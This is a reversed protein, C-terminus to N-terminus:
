VRLRAAKKKIRSIANDVSKEDKNLLHAIQAYSLGEMFLDLVKKEMPSLRAYLRQWILERNEKMFYFDEPGAAGQESLTDMLVPANEQDEAPEYLSIYSNLPQHKKRQSARVASLIQRSICLRAFGAFTQGSEPKYDWIAKMLGIMGEQILDDSEAGILYFPRAKQKVLSKYKNLLFDIGEKQGSQICACIQEDTMREFRSDM